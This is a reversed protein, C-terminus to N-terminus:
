FNKGARRVGRGTSANELVSAALIGLLMSLLRGIQEITENKITDSIGKKLLGSEELSKVRILSPNKLTPKEPSPDIKGRKM